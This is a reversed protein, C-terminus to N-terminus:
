LLPREVLASVEEFTEQWKRDLVEDLKKQDIKVNKSKRVIIECSLLGPKSKLRPDRASAHGKKKSMRMKEGLRPNEIKRVGNTM